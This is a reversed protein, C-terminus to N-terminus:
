SCVLVTAKLVRLKDFSNLALTRCLMGSKGDGWVEHRPPEPGRSLFTTDSACDAASLGPSTFNFVPHGM